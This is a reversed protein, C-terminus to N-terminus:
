RHTADLEKSAEDIATQLARRSQSGDLRTRGVYLLPVGDGGLEDLMATDRTIRAETAPDALCARYRDVDVGREVVLQEVAQEGLDPSRYLADTLDDRAGLTEGCVAARAATRADPHMRLPVHRIVVRVKGPRDALVASLAAHTRRCFPCQFDTFFVVTVVGQPARALEDRIVPPAGGGCSVLACLLCLFSFFVAPAQLRV